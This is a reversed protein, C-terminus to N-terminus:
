HHAGERQPRPSLSFGGPPMFAGPALGNGPAFGARMSSAIARVTAPPVEGIATVKHGDVVTSLASSSGVNTVTAAEASLGRSKHPQADPEVFVSVSALGDSFVLHTVVTRAGGLV